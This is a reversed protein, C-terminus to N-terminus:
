GKLKQNGARQYAPYETCCKRLSLDQCLEAIGCRICPQKEPCGMCGSKKDGVGVAKTQM